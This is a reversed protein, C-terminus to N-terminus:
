TVVLNPLGYVIFNFASPSLTTHKPHKVCSIVDRKKGPDMAGENEVPLTVLEREECPFSQSESKRAVHVAQGSTMGVKLLNEILLEMKTTNKKFTSHWQNAMISRVGALSLLVATELPRELSLHLASKEIDLKSQRRVSLSNQVLDFIIVLQCEQFNMAVLKSTIINALFREAGYFIFASCNNMLEELEAHSPTHGSGMIGEWHPTFQQSYVEVIRRMKDVPNDSGTERADNYPDVIYKFNHTNVPICSPPLARNVPVVKISKSQDGKGKAGKTGKTEKKNDGEVAEERQIRNYLLQLSFDRSVSSVGDEQLVSLAELPLEMLLKDALVIFSEGMDTPAGSLGKDVASKEERDKMKGSEPLHFISASPTQVRFSSIGLQSLVPNLYDEMQKVTDNFQSALEDEKTIKEMLNTGKECDELAQEMNGHQAIHSLQYQEKLLIHMTEEKYFQISTLLRFFIEPNVITKAVKTCVLTGSPQIGKGKQSDSPKTKEIFAGYLVSGNDSHQLIVIKFNVPLENLLNLHHPHINLNTYAKSIGSLTEEVTKQLDSPAENKKSQLNHYLNLLASLQSSSTDNNVTKLIESMMHSCYCSQYLALYQGSSAPDFHGFCELMNLSAEALIETFKNNLSLSVAQALIESAQALFQQAVIRRSRIKASKLSYQQEEQRGGIELNQGSSLKKETGAPDEQLSSKGENMFSTDWQISSNLPDVQVALCRLCKGLLCLSRTRKEVPGVCFNNIAELQTLAVQGLTKGTTRWDQQVSTYDPTPRVFDDVVKQVHDKREAALAQRKEEKCLFDLMDLTMDVLSLRLIALNKMAPLTMRRTEQLQLLSLINLLTEEKLAVAQHMLLYSDLLYRHQGDKDGTHRALMRLAKAHTIMADVEQERKGLQSFEKTMQRLKDCSAMLTKITEPDTHMSNQNNSNHKLSQIQLTAIRTELSAIMFRLAHIRNRQEEFASKFISVSHELIKCALAEKNEGDGGLTAKELCMTVRFWFNEDGGINQAEELLAKAQSHNKEYNALVAFLLLCQAEASKDHLERAVMHAESLLLRAPQYLGMDLLIEAKDLWVDHVCLGSLKKRGLFNNKDYFVKKGTNNEPPNMKAGDTEKQLALSQRCKMQEEEYIFVAGVVKEHYAASLNLGLQSSTKAVRLHYLDSLSKSDAVVYAIVEALQLVPLTLHTLSLSELEKVLQDLFFLSQSPKAFSQQNVSCLSTDQKFAQRVEEPCDYGAWEEPNPPLNELPGKRKIKEQVVPPPLPPEKSKKGKDKKPTAVPTPQSPPISSNKLSDKILAGATALSVQWIRLIYTYAMLCHQQHQPSACGGIIAMLTHARFLAELQKVNKLEAVYLNSNATKVGIESQCRVSVQNNMNAKEMKSAKPQEHTETKEKEATHMGVSRSIQKEEIEYQKMDEFEMHLLVDIAWDIQLLADSIPFQSCYLWEGFEILYEVKQWDNEPQQLSSIANQFCILQETTEKSCLAVRHWMYSVYDENEDKFKQIDMLTSQGLRAKVTVRHKFILLRHKTRPMERIAEDLVQLGSEWDNRDAQIHFLLGYLAARLTLDDEPNGLSTASFEFASGIVVSSDESLTNQPVNFKSLEGTKEKKSTRSIAKLIKEIPKRLQERGSPSHTFPLCANWFHRAAIMCLSQSGAKEAYCASLEFSALAMDCIHPQGTSQQMISQGKICAANSLMEQVLKSNYIEQKKSTVKKVAAAELELARQSCMMVLEHDRCLHAFHTLQLWVQLEVVPDTWKCESTMKALVSLTPTSFEMLKSNNCAHMELGVLVKTMASQRDNKSEDDFDLKLGIQQQLLQKVRVWTVIIQHRVAIPVTNAPVNGITLHLAYECVELARKVDVVGSPDLLFSQVSGAKEIGKVAGKKSKDTPSTKELDRKENSTKASTPIWPLILGQAATNCLMVLLITEGSHGTQKLLDILKQFTDVLEKQRGVKILHSNYNWIYVAANYVIWSENLEAGMEAARLFNETAYLSLYQIWDRYILWEPNEEPNKKIYGAPHKSRDEQPVPKANLQVGESMLKHVTAEANIFRIEALLRILDRESTCCQKQMPISGTSLSGETQNRQVTGEDDKLECNDKSAKWRGDEYMLCFRCAARCVDWVEQKRALKALAAWIKVREKDNKNGLRKLHGDAKKICCMHHQAKACLQSIPCNRNSTKPVKTENDGDLVVQFADPALAIGSNVLLPRKKRVDDNPNGKKAQEIFLAAQDENREPTEYLMKRLQLPHLASHLRDHYIGKEDLRLAKQIHEVATEIRDEGEEILSLETHVQCRLQFLLSNTKELVEAVRTLQNRINKRLNPQLLPLCLNWQTACVVQIVNIDGERVANQLTQDLKKIMKLHTQLFFACFSEVASRSYEEIKTGQNQLELECNLCEIEILVGIDSLGVRKLEKLCEAAIQPCRLELSLRTLEKLLSIRESVPIQSVSETLKSASGQFPSLSRGLESQVLLLYINKLQAASDKVSENTELQSKIKQMKYIVALGLNAKAKKAAKALDMLKHRVQLSFIKPYLDPANAEIFESTVKAFSAAEKIKRADLFSEVLELMLQARWSYDSEGIEELSKCVQTLTPILFQRFGPRLFPRVMQWYLVSANFIVFYYRPQEKSIEIAKLFYVAAKELEEVNGFTEPAFLQGQCLYARGLFQSKPPQGKFYMKLCDKSIEKNGLQLAQEACLVNLEPSFSGTTDSATREETAAKILHYANKLAEVDQESEAKALLQRISFDM